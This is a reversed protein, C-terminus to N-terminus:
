LCHASVDTCLVVCGATVFIVITFKKTLTNCCLKLLGIKSVGNEIPFYYCNFISEIQM